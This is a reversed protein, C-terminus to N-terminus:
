KAIKKKAVSKANPGSKELLIHRPRFDQNVPTVLPKTKSGNADAKEIDINGDGAAGGRKM